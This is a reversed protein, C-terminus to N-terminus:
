ISRGGSSRKTVVASASSPVESSSAVIESRPEAPEWASSSETEQPVRQIRMGISRAKRVIQDYRERGARTGLIYAGSAIVAARLMHPRREKRTRVSKHAGLNGLAEQFAGREEGLDERLAAVEGRLRHNDRDLKEIRAHMMRERAREGVDTVRNAIGHRTM